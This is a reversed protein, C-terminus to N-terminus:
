PMCQVVRSPVDDGTALARFRGGPRAWLAGWTGTEVVRGAEVVLIHDATRVTSLRHAIMVITLEGHLDALAGYIRQENATDLASTAEDLLLLSPRRLLARALALHQREGGSLRVGRDGLVTDLGQPLAAVMEDAAAHQLARHLDAESAEPWAWLLNVRVTDHFLFTDQSVYGIAQRWAGLWPGRIPVGDV